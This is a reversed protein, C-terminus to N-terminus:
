RCGFVMLVEVLTGKIPAGWSQFELPIVAVPWPMLIPMMSLPM